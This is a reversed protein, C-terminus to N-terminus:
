LGLEEGLRGLLVPSDLYERALERAWLSHEAPNRRVTEIAEVAEDLNTVAFLGRGFPLHESFGTDQLIVPRGAALYAASRDSFWGTHTAVYVQKCVSFEGASQRIYSWYSDYSHTVDHSDRVSWGAAKLETIPAQGAVAIEMPQNTRQPLQVFGAFERDKQGYIQGDFELPAHAQWNMVTTLLAGAPQTSYEVLDVVVPNFLPRWERGATPALCGDTGVCAGNSYYHDYEPLPDGARRMREMKMQTAGPEGDVLVRTGSPQAEELWTGHSGIDIFVDSSRFISRITERSLGQYNNQADVYCLRNELGFRELLKTVTAMGYSCDDSMVKRVPDFCSDPYAAKEVLYVEHGLRDFGILWQLTWSLNGGLPYRVAWSGIVIRAM